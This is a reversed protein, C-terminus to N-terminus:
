ETVKEGVENGIGGTSNSRFGEGIRAALTELGACRSGKILVTDGAQLRGPLRRAAEAVDAYCVAQVASEAASAAAAEAIGQASEGVAVVLAVGAGAAQEGVARHLGESQDGLEAMEGAVLVRRGGTARSLVELAAQMSTPNANYCDDIVTVEGVRRVDLRLSPMQFSSLVALIREERMGLHRCVTFVGAANVANHAGPVDLQLVHRGEIVASTHRLDGGVNTVRVDAEPHDGYTIWRLEGARPLVGLGSVAAADIVALGEPRVHAFLSMKEARVGAIGGLGALHANGISTVMGIDPWAMAALTAVEGPASAGIEVVLFQDDREGALLTLPVGIHNNYSKLAARGRLETGLVHALMSKTTTKGNSGTVAIVTAGAVRRHYAALKGLARTVNGVRILPARSSAAFDEGVVCACAGGEFAAAVFEHGDFREGKVAFFLEGAAVTRSDTSVGSVVQNRHAGSARGDMAQAVQGLAMPIM